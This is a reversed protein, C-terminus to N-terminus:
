QGGRVPWVYFFQAKDINGTRGNNLNLFWADSARGPVSTSSWYFNQQVDTFPGPSGSLIKEPDATLVQLENLTPLRWDGVVSGDSLGAGDTDASLIGARTNAGDDNNGDIWLKQGGWDAKKLWVLCRGKTKGDAMLGLLDTVTGDGNDCWRTGEQQDNKWISAGDGDCNCPATEPNLTGTQQGWEGDTLGWFTKDKTVDEAKAGDTDDKEPMKDMIADLDHMTGATPGSTPEAFGAGRKAGEEGTDLRNYLDQLTYLASAESGPGGPPDLEGAVVAGTSLLLVVASAGSLARLYPHYATPTPSWPM